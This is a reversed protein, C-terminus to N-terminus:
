TKIYKSINTAFVYDACFMFSTVESDERCGIRCGCLTKVKVKLYQYGSVCINQYYVM